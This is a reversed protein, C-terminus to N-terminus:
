IEPNLRIEVIFDGKSDTYAALDGGCSRLYHQSLFLGLGLGQQEFYERNIQTFPKIEVALNEPLYNQKNKMTLLGADLFISINSDAVSFKLANEFLETVVFQWQEANMRFSSDSGFFRVRPSIELKNVTEEISEKLSRIIELPANTQSVEQFLTIKTLSRNLREASKLAMKLLEKNEPSGMEESATQVLYDLISLIGFLPTRLEHYKINRESHVISYIKKDLWQMRESRRRIIANVAAILDEEYIPKTLYDEAGGLMGKRADEKAVRATLFIFPVNVLDSQSRVKELFEYGDMGPMMVDSIILDVDTHPLMELASAASGCAQVEFGNIELIESLNERLEAEDEVLLIKAAM